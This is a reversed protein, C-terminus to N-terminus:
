ERISINEREHQLQRVQVGKASQAAMIACFGEEEEEGWGGVVVAVAWGGRVGGGSQGGSTARRPREM